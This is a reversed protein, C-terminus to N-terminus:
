DLRLLYVCLSDCSARGTCAARALEVNAGRQTHHALARDMVERLDAEAKTDAHTTAETCANGWTVLCCLFRRARQEHAMRTTRSFSFRIMSAGSVVRSPACPVAAALSDYSARDTCASEGRTARASCSPPKPTTVRRRVVISRPESRHVRRRM